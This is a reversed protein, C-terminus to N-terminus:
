FPPEEDIGAAAPAPAAAPATSAAPESAPAPAAADALRNRAAVFARAVADTEDGLHKGFGAAQARDLLETLDDESQCGQAAAIWTSARSPDGAPPASRAPGADAHQEAPAAAPTFGQPPTVQAVIEDATVRGPAAPGPAPGAEVAPAVAARAPAPATRLIETATVRPTAAVAEFEDSTELEESTYPMAFLVDSAILRCLEGTARAILMTKPQKKWESKNLLGLLQARALDWEVEQWEKEGARRGRMVCRDGTSEIVQVSHGHSQVLGRMAHARLAPVGQIIDMSRLSAMVQLGLEQGALIAAAVEDPKGRMTTPVFSTKCLSVAISAATRADEAWLALASSETGPMQAQQTPAPQHNDRMALETM